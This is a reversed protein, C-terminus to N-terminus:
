SKKKGFLENLKIGVVSTVQNTILQTPLEATKQGYILATIIGPNFGSLLYIPVYSAFFSTINEQRRM